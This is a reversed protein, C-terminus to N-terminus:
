AMQSQIVSAAPQAASCLQLPISSRRGPEAGADHDALERALSVHVRRLQAERLAVIVPTNQPFSYASVAAPM